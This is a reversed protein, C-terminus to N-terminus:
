ICWRKEELLLPRATLRIRIAKAIAALFSGAERAECNLQDTLIFPEYGLERCAWAAAQCLNKVSGTIYSKVYDLRKVTETRLLKEAQPSLKLQYKEVVNLAEECTSSDPCAPGSAIMDLPDGLIDSLVISYVRAPECLKAFKGGKVASLRKRIRNCETIDAGCALLQKTIDQLEKPEVLPLEFLSSGGGSLLFLVTDRCTLGKVMDVAARTAQFTGEDPVPHGAEMCDFKPIRDKAHGYKTIVIGRCIREELIDSAAKAMQWAAKGVALVYLNGSSFTAERLAERVAQDPLVQGIAKQIIREADQRLSM